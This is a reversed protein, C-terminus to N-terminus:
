GYLEERLWELRKRLLRRARKLRTAAGAPKLGLAAATQEISAGGLYYLAAAARLRGPLSAVAETVIREIERGALEERPGPRGDARRALPEGGPGDTERRRKRRRLIDGAANLAIRCLWTGFSSDGRFSALREYAKCFATQLAEEALSADGCYGLVAGYIMAQNRRLLEAFAADEGGLAAAILEREGRSSIEEM